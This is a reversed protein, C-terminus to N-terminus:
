SLAGSSARATGAAATGLSLLLSADEEERFVAAALKGTADDIAALLTLWPGREELWAHRSGDIQVLMGLHRMASVAAAINDDVSSEQPLSGQQFGSAVCAPARSSSAMASLWCIACINTIAGRM